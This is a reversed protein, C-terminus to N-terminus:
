DNKLGIMRNIEKRIKYRDRELTNFYITHTALDVKNWILDYYNNPLTTTSFEKIKSTFTNVIM